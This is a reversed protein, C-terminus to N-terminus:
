KYYKGNPNHVDCYPYFGEWIEKDKRGCDICLKHEECVSLHRIWRRDFSEFGPHFGSPKDEALEALFAENHVLEDPVFVYYGATARQYQNLTEIEIRTTNPLPIVNMLTWGLMNSKTYLQCATFEVHLNSLGLVLEKIVEKLESAEEEYDEHSVFGSIQQLGCRHGEAVFFRKRLERGYIESLRGAGDFVEHNFIM